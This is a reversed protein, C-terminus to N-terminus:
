SADLPRYARLFLAGFSSIATRVEWGDFAAALAERSLHHTAIFELGSDATILEDFQEQTLRIGNPRLRDPLQEIVEPEASLLFYPETASSSSFIGVAGGPACLAKLKDVAAALDGTPLHQLVWKCLVFDAPALRSPDVDQIRDSLLEAGGAHPDAALATRREEDPEMLLVRDFQGFFAVEDPIITRGAGVNVLVGRGFSRDRGLDAFSEATFDVRKQREGQPTRLIQRDTTDAYTTRRLEM